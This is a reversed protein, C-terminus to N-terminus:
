VGILLMLLNSMVPNMIWGMLDIGLAAWFSLAGASHDPWVGLDTRSGPGMIDPLVAVAIKSGDLPAIPLLNFLM